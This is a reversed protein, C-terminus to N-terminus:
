WAACPFHLAGASGGPLSLDGARLRPRMYFLFLKGLKEHVPRGDLTAGVPVDTAITAMLMRGGRAAGNDSLKLKAHQYSSTNIGPHGAGLRRAHASLNM